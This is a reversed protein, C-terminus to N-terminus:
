RFEPPVGANRCYFDYRELSDDYWEWDSVGGCELCSLKISSALLLYYVVLSIGITEKETM